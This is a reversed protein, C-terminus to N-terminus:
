KILKLTSKNITNDQKRLSLSASIERGKRIGTYYAIRTADLTDTKDIIERSKIFIDGTIAIKSDDNELIWSCHRNEEKISLKCLTLKIKSETEAIFAIDKPNVDRLFNGDILQKWSKKVYTHTGFEKFLWLGDVTRHVSRDLTYMYCPSYLQKIYKIIKIFGM